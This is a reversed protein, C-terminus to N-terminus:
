FFIGKKWNLIVKYKFRQRKWVTNLISKKLIYDKLTKKIERKCWNEVM